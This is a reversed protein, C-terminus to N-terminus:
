LLGAESFLRDVLPIIGVMETADWYVEASDAVVQDLCMQLLLDDSKAVVWQLYTRAWIEDVRLQYRLFSRIKPNSIKRGAVTKNLRRIKKHAAWYNRLPDFLPDHESGFGQKIPNLALHDILHGIEHLLTIPPSDAQVSINISLPVPPRVRYIYGGGERPSRTILVPITPLKPFRHLQDVISVVHRFQRAYPSEGIRLIECLQM